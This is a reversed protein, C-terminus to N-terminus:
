RCGCEAAIMGEYSYDFKVVGDIDFLISIPDLKTPVCCARSGKEPYSTHLLTQIIAHRTPSLHTGIPYYCKGICEFAHYGDPAIVTLNWKIEKFVIYLQQRRCSSRKKKSRKFRNHAKAVHGDEFLVDLHRRFRAKAHRRARALFVPNPSVDDESEESSNESESEENKASLVTDYIKRFSSISSSDLPRKHQANNRIIKSQFTVNPINESDVYEYNDLLSPQKAKASSIQHEALQMTKVANVFGQFYQRSYNTENTSNRHFLSLEISDTSYYTDRKALVHHSISGTKKAFVVLLPEKGDISGIALRVKDKNKNAESLSLHVEFIKLGSTMWSQVSSTVNISEWTGNAISFNKSTVLASPATENWPDLEYVKIQGSSKCVEQDPFSCTVVLFVRVEAYQIIEEEKDLTVNFVLTSPAETNDSSPVPDAHNINIFSTVVTNMLLHYHTGQLLHYLQIMYEPAVSKPPGLKIKQSLKDSTSRRSRHMEYSKLLERYQSTFSASEQVIEQLGKDNNDSLNFTDTEKRPYVTKRPVSNISFSERRRSTQQRWGQGANKVNEQQSKPSKVAMKLLNSSSSDKTDISALKLETLTIIKAGSENSRPKFESNMSHRDANVAPDIGLLEESPCPLGAILLILPPLLVRYIFLVDRM